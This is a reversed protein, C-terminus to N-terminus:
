TRWGSPLGNTWCWAEDRFLAHFRALADAALAHDAGVLASLANFRDTMNGADKFRQYAKGPWIVDGNHRAALCLMTLALGALARRGCSVTDPSYGRQGPARGLGM